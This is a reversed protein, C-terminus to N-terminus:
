DDERHAQVQLEGTQTGSVSLEIPRCCVSCDEIWDQDGESRDVLIEIQEGCYPCQLSVGELAEM